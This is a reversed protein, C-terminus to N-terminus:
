YKETLYLFAKHYKEFRKFDKKTLERNVRRLDMNDSLDNIKVAIALPSQETKKIFEMYDIDEETKTLCQIAFVINEPFGAEVFYSLPYEPCDEVVDHLVGVIKEDITKGANMVRMIHGIYPMDYKDTQGKHAKEAIKIAKQLLEIKTM